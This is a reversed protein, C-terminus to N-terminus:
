LFDELRARRWDVSRVLWEGGELVLELDFRMLDADMDLLARASDIPRGAMAVLVSADATEGAVTVETVLSFLHIQRNRLMMGQVLRLVNARDYGREDSYDSHVRDRFVGIERAEAAGEADAILDRIRAEPNQGDGGCGPLAAGLALLAAALWVVTAPRAPATNGRRSSL